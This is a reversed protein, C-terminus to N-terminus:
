RIDSLLLERPTSEGEVRVLVSKERVEVCHVKVRAAGLKFWAFEGAKLTESNILAFRRAPSHTISKVVLNTYTPLPQTTAGSFLPLDRVAGPSGGVLHPTASTSAPSGAGAPRGALRAVLHELQAVMQKTSGRQVQSLMAGQADVVLLTPLASVQYKQMLQQNAQQHLLALPRARPSDVEMLILERDALAAFEPSNFATSKLQICAPCWDSGVFSMLIPRGTSRSQAKATEFSSLWTAAHSGGIGMFLALVAIRLSRFSM